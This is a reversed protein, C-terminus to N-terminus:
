FSADAQYADSNWEVAEELAAPYVEDLSFVKLEAPDPPRRANLVSNIIFVVAAIIILSLVFLVRFRAERVYRARQFRKVWDM